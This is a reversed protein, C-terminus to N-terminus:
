LIRGKSRTGDEPIDMPDSNPLRGSSKEEEPQDKIREERYALKMFVDLLTALEKLDKEEDAHIDKRNSYYFSSSLVEYMVRPESSVEEDRQLKADVKNLLTEAHRVLIPDKTHVTVIKHLSPLITEWQKKADKFKIM